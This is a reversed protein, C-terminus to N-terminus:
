VCSLLFRSDYIILKWTFFNIIWTVNLICIDYFYEVYTLIIRSKSSDVKVTKSKMTVTIILVGIIGFTWLEPITGVGM